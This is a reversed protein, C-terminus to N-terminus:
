LLSAGEHLGLLFCSQIEIDGELPHEWHGLRRGNSGVVEWSVPSWTRLM